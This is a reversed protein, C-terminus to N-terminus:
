LINMAYEQRMILQNKVCILMAMEKIPSLSPQIRREQDSVKAVNIGQPSIKRSDEVAYYDYIRGYLIGNEPTKEYDCYAPTILNFLDHDDTTNMITDGNQNQAVRLNEVMWVQNGMAITHYIKGDIDTVILAQSKIALIGLLAFLLLAKKM